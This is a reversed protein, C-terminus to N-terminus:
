LCHKFMQLIVVYVLEFNGGGYKGTVGNLDTVLAVYIDSRSDLTIQKTQVSNGTVSASLSSENPYRYYTDNVIVEYTGNDYDDYSNYNTLGERNEIANIFEIQLKVSFNPLLDHRTKNWDNSKELVDVKLLNHKTHYTNTTQGSELTVFFPKIVYSGNIPIYHDTQPYTDGRVHMTHTLISTGCEYWNHYNDYLCYQVSVGQSNINDGDTYSTRYSVYVVNMKADGVYDFESGYKNRFLFFNLGTSSITDEDNPIINPRDYADITFICENPINGFDDDFSIDIINTNDMLWGFHDKVCQGLRGNSKYRSSESTTYVTGAGGMRLEGDHQPGISGYKTENTIGCASVLQHSLGMNHGIEHGLVGATFWPYKIWAQSSEIAELGAWDDFASNGLGLTM